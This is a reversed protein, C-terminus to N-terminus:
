FGQAWDRLRLSIIRWTQDTLRNWTACCHDLIDPYSSFVRNSIWNERLFQRVNEVPNLEPSRPPLPVLTIHDPVM